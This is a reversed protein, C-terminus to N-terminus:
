KSRFLLDLLMINGLHSHRTRHCMVLLASHAAEGYRPMATHQLTSRWHAIWPMHGRWISTSPKHLLPNEHLARRWLNSLVEVLIVLLVLRWGSFLCLIDYQELNICSTIYYLGDKEYETSRSWPRNFNSSIKLHWQVCAWLNLKVM